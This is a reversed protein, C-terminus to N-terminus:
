FNGFLLVVVGLVIGTVGAVKRRVFVADEGAERRYRSEQSTFIWLRWRFLGSALILAGLGILALGMINHNM